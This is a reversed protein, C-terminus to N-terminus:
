KRETQKESSIIYITYTSRNHVLTTINQTDIVEYHCSNLVQHLDNPFFGDHPSYERHHFLCAPIPLFECLFLQGRNSLLSHAKALEAEIDSIHHLSLFYYIVDFNGEIEQITGQLVSVQKDTSWQDSLFRVAQEDVDILALKEAVRRIYTAAIGYGCGVELIHARLPCICPSIKEYFARGVEWNAPTLMPITNKEM